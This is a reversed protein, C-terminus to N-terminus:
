SWERDMNSTYRGVHDGATVEYHVGDDLLAFTPVFGRNRLMEEIRSKNHDTVNGYGEGSRARSKLTPEAKGYKVKLQLSLDAVTKMQSYLAQVSENVAKRSSDAMQAVMAEKQAVVFSKMLKEAANTEPMKNITETLALVDKETSQAAIVAKNLREVVPSVANFATNIGTIEPIVPAIQTKAEM